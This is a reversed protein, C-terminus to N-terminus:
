QKGIPLLLQFRTGRENSRCNILGHLKRVLEGVVALGVGLHGQGKTSLVPQYLLDYINVPIEPDRIQRLAEIVRERLNEGVRDRRLLGLINM